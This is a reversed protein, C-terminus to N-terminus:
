QASMKARIREILQPAEKERWRHFVEHDAAGRANAIRYTDDDPAKGNARHKHETRIDDCPARLDLADALTEQADDHCNHFLGPLAWWGCARVLDGGVAVYTSIRGARHWNWEDKGSAIKWRGAAAAIRTDWGPTYVYEDDCILGYYPENPYKGFVLNMAQCLGLNYGMYEYDWGEPLHRSLDAQERSCADNIVLLGKETMGTKKIQELVALCEKPRNHTILVWM